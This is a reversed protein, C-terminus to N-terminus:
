DVTVEPIQGRYLGADKLKVLADHQRQNFQGQCRENWILVHGSEELLWDLYDGWRERPIAEDLKADTRYYERILYNRVYMQHSPVAYQVVGETDIVVELYNTFTAKHTEIDFPSHLIEQQKSYDVYM